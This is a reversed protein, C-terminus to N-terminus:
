NAIVYDLAPDIGKSYDIFRNNILVDPIIEDSNYNSINFFKTSYKINVESNPLRFNRQDGYHNFGTRPPEGVLVCNTNLIFDNIYLIASSFTTRGILIYIKFNNNKQLKSITNAFNNQGIHMGGTNKRLDVVLKDIKNESLCNIVDKEIRNNIIFNNQYYLIHSDDLLKYWQQENNSLYFPRETVFDSLYELKIDGKTKISIEKTIIEGDPKELKLQVTQGKLINLYELVYPNILNQAIYYKLCSENVHPCLGGVKQIVSDIDETGMSIIKTGILEQYEPDAGVIYIGEDFCYLELPLLEYTAYDICTHPDNIEAFIKQIRILIQYPELDDIDKLLNDFDYLYDQESIYSYVDPHKKPLTDRLFVIDEKWKDNSININQFVTITIFPKICFYFILIIIISVIIKSAVTRSKQKM